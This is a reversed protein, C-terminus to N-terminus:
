RRHSRSGGIGLSVNVGIILGTRPIGLGIVTGQSLPQGCGLGVSEGFTPESPGGLFDGLLLGVLVGGGGLLLHIRRLGLNVIGFEPHLDLVFQEEISPKRGDPGNERTELNIGGVIGGLFVYVGLLGSKVHRLIGDQHIHGGLVKGKPQGFFQRHHPLVGLLIQFFM